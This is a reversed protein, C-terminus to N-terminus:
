SKFLFDRYKKYLRNKLIYFNDYRELNEIPIKRRAQAIWDPLRLEPNIDRYGVTIDFDMDIKRLLRKCLVISQHVDFMTDHCCVAEYMFKKKAFYKLIFYYLIGMVKPGLDTENPYLKRYKAWDKKDFNITFMLIDNKNLYNVIIELEKSELQHGKRNWYRPYRKEIDFLLPKISRKSVSTMALVVDQIDGTKKNVTNPIGSIDAYFKFYSPLTSRM